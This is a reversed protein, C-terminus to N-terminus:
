EQLLQVFLWVADNVMNVLFRPGPKVSVQILFQVGRPLLTAAVYGICLNM